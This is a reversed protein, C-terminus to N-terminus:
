EELEEAQVTGLLHRFFTEVVSKLNDVMNMTNTVEATIIYPRYPKHTKEALEKTEENIVFMMVIEKLGSITRKYKFTYVTDQFVNRATQNSALTLERAVLEATQIIEEEEALPKEIYKEELKKQLSAIENDNM